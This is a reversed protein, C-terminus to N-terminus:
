NLHIIILSKSFSNLSCAKIASRFLLNFFSKKKAILPVEAFLVNQLHIMFAVTKVLVCTFVLSTFFKERKSVYLVFTIM